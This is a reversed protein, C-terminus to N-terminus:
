RTGGHDAGPAFLEREAAEIEEQGRCPGYRALAAGNITFFATGGAFGSLLREAREREGLLWLAAAIAEATNLESLRGFHQPNAALLYPLRRHAAGGGGVGVPLGGREGVRNWSCDIALVGETLARPRDATSL